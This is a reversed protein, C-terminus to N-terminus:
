EDDVGRSNRDVTFTFGSTNLTDPEVMYYLCDPCSRHVIHTHGSGIDGIPESYCVYM